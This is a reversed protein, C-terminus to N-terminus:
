STSCCQIDSLILFSPVKKWDEQCSNQLCICQFIVNREEKCKIKHIDPRYHYHIRQLHWGQLYISFYKKNWVISHRLSFSLGSKNIQRWLYLDRDWRFNENWLKFETVGPFDPGHGLGCNQSELNVCFIYSESESGCWRLLAHQLVFLLGSLRQIQTLFKANVM